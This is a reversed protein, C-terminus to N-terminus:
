HFAMGIPASEYVAAPRHEDGARRYRAKVVTGHAGEIEARGIFLPGNYDVPALQATHGPEYYEDPCDGELVSVEVSRAGRARPDYVLVVVSSEWLPQEVLM